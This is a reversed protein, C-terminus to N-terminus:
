QRIRPIPPIMAKDRRNLSDTLYGAASIIMKMIVLIRLDPVLATTARTHNEGVDGQDLSTDCSDPFPQEGVNITFIILITTASQIINVYSASAIIILSEPRGWVKTFLFRQQTSEISLNFLLIMIIMCTITIMMIVMMIIMVVIIMMMMMSLMIIM